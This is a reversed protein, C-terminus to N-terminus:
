PNASSRRMSELHRQAKAAERLCRRVASLRDLHRVVTRVALDTEPMLLRSKVAEYREQLAEDDPYTDGQLCAVAYAFFGDVATRPADTLPTLQPALAAVERVAVLTEEVDRVVRLADAMAEAMERSMSARHLQQCYDGITELLREVALREAALHASGDDGRVAAVAMRRSIGAVRELERALADLALAPTGLLTRDLYQPRALDEEATRFRTSLWAVLRSTLPLFILVGLFNFATHFLALVAATGGAALTGDAAQAVLWLLAPLLALAAVGTGLNFALHAAAARKADPTAGVVAILATSTTGVNAGIVMVAASPLSVLNGAAVTLIVTLAASSSQMLLTLSFGLVLAAVVGVPGARVLEAIPMQAGLDAFTGRLLDIGLFFLGFGVLATGLAGARREGAFVRLLMGGGILPLAFLRVDVHFGILAVLWATATTGVNSGYIVPVAQALTLLGANVFGITAVTVASSSQVVGTILIGSAVARLPRGTARALMSRLAQGAAVRLGETMTAMGLLLLGVGGLAAGILQWDTM